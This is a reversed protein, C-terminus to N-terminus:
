SKVAFAVALPVGTSIVVVPATQVIVGVVLPILQVAAVEGNPLGILGRRETIEDM